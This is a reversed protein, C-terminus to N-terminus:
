TQPRTPVSHVKDRFLERVCHLARATILWETYHFNQYRDNHGQPLHKYANVRGIVVALCDTITLPTAVRGRLADAYVLHKSERPDRPLAELYTEADVLASVIPVNHQIVSAATRTDLLNGMRRWDNAPTNYVASDPQPVGMRGQGERIAATIRLRSPPYLYFLDFSVQEADGGFPGPLRDIMWQNLITDLCAAVNTQAKNLYFECAHMRSLKSRKWRVHGKADVINDFASKPLLNMRDAGLSVETYHLHALSEQLALAAGYIYGYTSRYDEHVKTKNIDELLHTFWGWSEQLLNDAM